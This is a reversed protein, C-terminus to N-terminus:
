PVFLVFSALGSYGIRADGLDLVSDVREILGAIIEDFGDVASQELRRSRLARSSREVRLRGTEDEVAEGDKRELDEVGGFFGM